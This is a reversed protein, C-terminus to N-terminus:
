IDISMNTTIYQRIAEDPVENLITALFAAKLIHTAQETTIGRSKLYFLAKEDLQGITAGHSCKVDDAFIELQPKSNMIAHPSLVLTDNQQYANTKQADPHVYVKGNFAGSAQDDIIGKYHEHSECHHVQHHIRTQHDMSQKGSAMFGAQLSTYTNSELMDVEVNNRVIQGGVDFAFTKFYSDREQTAALKYVLNQQLPLNQWKVHHVRAGAKINFLLLSNIFGEPTSSTAQGTHEYRELISVESEQGCRIFLLPHSFSVADDHHTIRFELPKKLRLGKPIDIFLGNTNFSLNLFDFARNSEPALQPMQHQFAEKWEPRQYAEALSYWKVGSESLAPLALEMNVRGNNIPIIYSDLNPVAPLAENSVNAALKYNPTLIKQVPTYKWDEHKRGPFDIERLTSFASKQFQHLPSGSMGNLSAEMEKFIQALHEMIMEQGAM